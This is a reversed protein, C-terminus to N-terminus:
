EDREEEDPFAAEWVELKRKLDEIEDELDSTHEAWNSIVFHLYEQADEEAEKLVAEAVEKLRALHQETLAYIMGRIKSTRTFM